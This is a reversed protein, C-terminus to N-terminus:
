GSPGRMSILFSQIQRLTPRMRPALAGPHTQTFGSRVLFYAYEWDRLSELFYHEGLDGLREVDVYMESDEDDCGPHVVVFRHLLWERWTRYQEPPRSRLWDEGDISDVLSLPTFETKLAVWRRQIRAAAKMKVGGAHALCWALVNISQAPGTSATIYIDTDPITRAPDRAIIKSVLTARDMNISGDYHCDLETVFDEAYALEDNYWGEADADALSCLTIGVEDRFEWWLRSFALLARAARRKAAETMVEDLSESTDKHICSRAVLWSRPGPRPLEHGVGQHESYCALGIAFPCGGASAQSGHCTGCGNKSM